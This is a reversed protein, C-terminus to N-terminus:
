VGRGIRSQKGRNTFEEGQKWLRTLATVFRATEREVDLAAAAFRAFTFAHLADLHVEQGIDIHKTIHTPARSVVAFGQGHQVLSFRNGVQEISRDFLRQWQKFANRLDSRFQLRQQVHSETVD